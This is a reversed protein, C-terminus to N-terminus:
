LGGGLAAAALAPEIQRSVCRERQGVERRLGPLRRQLRRGEAHEKALMKLVSPDDGHGLGAELPDEAEFNLMEVLHPIEAAVRQDDLQHALVAVNDEKAILLLDYVADLM